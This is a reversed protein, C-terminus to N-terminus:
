RQLRSRLWKEGEVQEEVEASENAMSFAIDDIGIQDENLMAMSSEVEPDKQVSCHLLACIIGRVCLLLLLVSFSFCFFIM